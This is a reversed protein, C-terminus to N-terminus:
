ETCSPRATARRAFLWLAASCCAKTRTMTAKYQLARPRAHTIVPIVRRPYPATTARIQCARQATLIDAGLLPAQRRRKDELVGGNSEIVKRSAINPEDCTLLAPDIGLAHAVPLAASLMATAHGRRRASPRVAYGIHGGWERLGSTLRHRISIRGLYEEGAVWWLTTQPVYGGPRPSEELADDRLGRVYRAFEAPEEWLHTHERIERGTVGDDGPGGRGEARFETMAALFSRHVCIEPPILDPMPVPRSGPGPM